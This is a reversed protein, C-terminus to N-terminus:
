LEDSVTLFRVIPFFACRVRLPVVPGYPLDRFAEVESAQAVDYRDFRLTFVARGQIRSLLDTACGFMQKLPATCEVVKVASGRESVDPITWQRQELSAIVEGLQDSPVLVELVVFPQLLVPKAKGLASRVADSGRDQVRLVEVRRRAL